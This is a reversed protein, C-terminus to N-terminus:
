TRLRRRCGSGAVDPREDELECHGVRPRQLGQRLRAIRSDGQARARRALPALQQTQIPNRFHAGQALLDPEQKLASPGPFPAGVQTPASHRQDAAGTRVVAQRTVRKL